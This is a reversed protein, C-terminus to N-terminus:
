AMKRSIKGTYQAYGESSIAGDHEAEDSQGGARVSPPVFEGLQRLTLM